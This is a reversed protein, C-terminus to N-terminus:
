LPQYHLLVPMETLSVCVTNNIISREESSLMEYLKTVNCIIMYTHLCSRILQQLFTIYHNVRNEDCRIKM